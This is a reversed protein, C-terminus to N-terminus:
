AVLGQTILYYNFIKYASISCNSNLVSYSYLPKKPLPEISPYNRTKIRLQKDLNEWNTQKNEYALITNLKHKIFIEEKAIQITLISNTWNIKMCNGKRSKPQLKM